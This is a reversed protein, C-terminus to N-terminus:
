FQYFLLYILGSLMIYKAFKSVCNYDDKSKAKWLQVVAYIAPFLIGIGMFIASGLHWSPAFYTMWFILTAVLLVGVVLTINKTKSVGLVIPLTRAGGKEDGHMDELDKVIERFLTAFFAFGAYAVFVRWVAAGDEPFDKYLVKLFTNEATLIILAVLACFIAVILNGWFPQKKLTKSYWWMMFITIPFYLFLFYNQTVWSIYAGLLLGIGNLLWYYSKAKKLPILRHVIVSRPKNIKDIEYDYIDNIIYAAAAICVTTLVLLLFHFADLSPTVDHARFSPLLVRYYLIYQTLVVIILNPLRTMRLFSIM